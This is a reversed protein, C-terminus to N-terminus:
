WLVRPDKPPPTDDYMGVWEQRWDTDYFRLWSSKPLDLQKAVVRLEDAAKDPDTLMLDIYATQPLGAGEGVRAGLHKARLAKDVAETIKDRNTTDKVLEPSGEVQLYALREGHKSFRCSWFPQSPDVSTMLKAYNTVMTIRGGLGQPSPLKAVAHKDPGPSDCYPKDPLAALLQKKNQEFQQKLSDTMAAFNASKVSQARATRFTGLYRDANEEGLAAQCLYLAKAWDDPDDDKSFKDSHLMVDITNDDGITCTVDCVPPTDERFRESFAQDVVNSPLAERYTAFWWGPVPKQRAMLTDIIPRLWPRDEEVITLMCGKENCPGFEYMLDSDINQIHESGWDSLSSLDKGARFADHMRPADAALATWFADIKATVDQKRKWESDIQPTAFHFRGVAPQDPEDV